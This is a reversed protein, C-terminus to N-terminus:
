KPYVQIIGTLYGITLLLVFVLGLKMWGPMENTGRDISDQAEGRGLWIAIIIVGFFFLVAENSM